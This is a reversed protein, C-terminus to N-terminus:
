TYAIDILLKNIISNQYIAILEYSSLYVIYTLVM